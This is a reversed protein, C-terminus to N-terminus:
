LILVLLQAFLNFQHVAATLFLLMGTNLNKIRVQQTKWAIPGGAILKKSELSWLASSSASKNEQVPELVIDGYAHVHTEPTGGYISDEDLGVSKNKAITLNANKEPDNIYVLQSCLLLTADTADLSSQYISARWSTSELACNVERVTSTSLMRHACHIYEGPKEVVRLFLESGTPIRDGERYLCFLTILVCNVFMWRVVARV